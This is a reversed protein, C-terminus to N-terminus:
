PIHPPQDALNLEDIASADAETLLAGRERTLALLQGATIASAPM